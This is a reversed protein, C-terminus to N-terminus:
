LSPVVENNSGSRVAELVVLLRLHRVAAADGDLLEYPPTPSSDGNVKLLLGGFITVLLSQCHTGGVAGHGERQGVCECTVAM